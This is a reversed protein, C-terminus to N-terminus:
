NDSGDSSMTPLNAAAIADVISPSTAAHVRETCTSIKELKEIQSQVNKIFPQLETLQLWDLVASIHPAISLM